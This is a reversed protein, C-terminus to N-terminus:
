VCDKRQLPQTGPRGGRAAAGRRDAPRERLPRTDARDEGSCRNRGAELLEFLSPSQRRLQPSADGRATWGTVLPVGGARGRGAASSTEGSSRDPAPGAAGHDAHRRRSPFRHVVAARARRCRHGRPLRSAGVADPYRRVRGGWGVSAPCSGDPDGANPVDTWRRPLTHQATADNNTATCRATLPGTRAVPTTVFYSSGSLSAETPFTYSPMEGSSAAHSPCCRINKTADAGSSAPPNMLQEGFPSSEKRM